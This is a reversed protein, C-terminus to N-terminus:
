SHAHVHQGPGSASGIYMIHIGLKIIHVQPILKCIYIYIYIYVCICICMYIGIGSTDNNDNNDNNNNIVNHTYICVKM